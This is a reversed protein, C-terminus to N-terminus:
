PVFAAFFVINPPRQEFRISVQFNCDATTKLEPLVTYFDLNHFFGERPRCIAPYDRGSDKLYHHSSKVMSSSVPQTGGSCVKFFYNKPDIKRTRVPAIAPPSRKLKARAIHTFFDAFLPTYHKVSKKIGTTPWSINGGPGERM